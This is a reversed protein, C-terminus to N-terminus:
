TRWREDAHEGQGEKLNWQGDITTRGASKPMSMMSDRTSEKEVAQRARERSEDQGHAQCCEFGKVDGERVRAGHGVTESRREEAVERRRGGGGGM